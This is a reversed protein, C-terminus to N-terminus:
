WSIGKLESPFLRRDSTRDEDLVRILYLFKYWLFDYVFLVLGLFFMAFVVVITARKLEGWSPWNVKTM